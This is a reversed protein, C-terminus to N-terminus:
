ATNAAPPHDKPVYAKMNEYGQDPQGAGRVPRLPRLALVRRVGVGAVDTTVTGAKPNPMLGRPGLVRGLKAVKPMMDPTAILKDFEMFGAAIRDILDEAGVVDAGAEKALRLNDNQTLVAVRLEKGTGNPLSVTARLQQDAFKPDLGMRAHMEVSETFKTSATTKMRTIAEKPELEQTRKPVKSLMARFRKSRPKARRVQQPKSVVEDVEVEDVEVAAASVVVIDQLRQLRSPAVSRFPAVCRRAVAAPQMLRQQMAFAAM